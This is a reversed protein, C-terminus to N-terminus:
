RPAARAVPRPRRAPARASPTRGRPRGAALVRQRDDERAYATLALAPLAAGAPRERLAALLGYGDRGPLGIDSVLVDFRPSEGPRDIAALAEDASTAVTVHAGHHELVLQLALRTSADDEVLLVRTGALVAPAASAPETPADATAGSTATPALGPLEVTFTAGRGPGDSHATITGGHLEVIQHTIALGLGLGGQARTISADAQRFREFVHPLFDPAIGQGTDTVTLRLLPGLRALRATVTGGAPTFKVANSLLNWAVQQLRDPDVRALDPGAELDLALRVGRTEAMPQVTAAAAELVPGLAAERLSLTVKGSLMSSVDLLDEILQKQASASTEISALARPQQAPPVAGARLMKSWLLISSLPTRLEHSIVSLFEDRLVMAREAERRAEQERALVRAREDAVRKQATTDRSITTFGRLVGDPGRVPTITEDVWIRAGGKCVCWGQREARGTGARADDPTAFLDVHRGLVEAESYGKVREAGPTWTTIVGDPDLGFIAYDRINEVLTRVSAESTRLAAEARTREVAAWTREATAEVLAVEAPTWSRATGH